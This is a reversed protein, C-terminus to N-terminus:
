YIFKPTRAFRNCENTNNIVVKVIRRCTTSIENLDCVCFQCSMRNVKVFVACTKRSALRRRVRHVVLKRSMRM